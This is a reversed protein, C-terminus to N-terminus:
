DNLPSGTISMWRQRTWTRRRPSRDVQALAKTVKKGRRADPVPDIAKGLWDGPEHLVDTERRQPASIAGAQTLDASVKAPV